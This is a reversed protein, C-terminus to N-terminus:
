FLRRACPATETRSTMNGMFARVPPLRLREGSAVWQSARIIVEMAMTSALPSTARGAMTGMELQEVSDHTRSHHLPKIFSFYVKVLGKVSGPVRTLPQPVSASRRLCRASREERAKSAAHPTM